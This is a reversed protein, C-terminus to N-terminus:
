DFTLQYLMIEFDIARAARILQEDVDLALILGRVKQTPKALHERVDTVYGALQGITENPSHKKLEVVVLDGKEDQCLLDIINGPTLELQRDIISLGLPKLANKADILSEIDRESVRLKLRHRYNLRLREAYDRIGVLQHYKAEDIKVCATRGFHARLTKPLTSQPLKFSWENVEDINYAWDGAADEKGASAIRFDAVLIQWSFIRLLCRDGEAFNRINNSPYFTRTRLFTDAKWKSDWKETSQDRSHKSAVIWFAM